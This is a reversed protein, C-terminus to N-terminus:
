LFARWTFATMLPAKSSAKWFYSRSSVGTDGVVAGFSPSLRLSGSFIYRLSM